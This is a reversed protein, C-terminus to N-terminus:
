LFHTKKIRHYSAKSIKFKECLGQITSYNKLKICRVIRRVKRPNLKNNGGNFHFRGERICQHTNEKQTGWRLNEVRNDTKINNLHMVVPLNNPNPIYALAVLRSVKYFKRLSNKKLRIIPYGNSEKYKLNVWGNSRLVQITKGDRYVRVQLNHLIIEKYM